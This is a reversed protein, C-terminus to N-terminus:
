GGPLGEPCPPTMTEDVKLKLDAFRRSLTPTPSASTVAIATQEQMTWRTLAHRVATRSALL